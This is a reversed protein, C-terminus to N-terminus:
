KRVEQQQRCVGRNWVYGLWIRNPFKKWFYKFLQFKKSLNLLAAGLSVRRQEDAHSLCGFHELACLSTAGIKPNGEM